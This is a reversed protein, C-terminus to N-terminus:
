DEDKRTTHKEVHEKVIKHKNGDSDESNEKSEVVKEYSDKKSDNRISANSILLGLILLIFGITASAFSWDTPVTIRASSTRSDSSGNGVTTTHAVVEQMPIFYLLGGTVLFIVGIVILSTKM